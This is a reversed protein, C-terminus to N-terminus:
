RPLRDCGVCRWASGPAGIILMGVDGACGAVADFVLWGLLTAWVLQVYLLPSLLSAPTQSSPASSCSIGSAAM